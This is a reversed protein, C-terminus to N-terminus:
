SSREFREWLEAVFAPFGPGFTWHADEVASCALALPHDARVVTIVPLAAHAKSVRDGDADVYTPLVLDPDAALDRWLEGLRHDAAARPIAPLRGDSMTRLAAVEARLWSRDLLGGEELTRLAAWGAVRVLVDDPLRSLRELTPGDGARLARHPGAADKMRQTPKYGGWIWAEEEEAAQRARAAVEAEAARQRDAGTPAPPLTEVIERWGAPATRALQRVMGFFERQLQDARFIPAAWFVSGLAASLDDPDCAYALVLGAWRRANARRREEKSPPDDGTNQADSWRDDLRHSEKEWARRITEFRPNVTGASSATVSALLDSVGPAESVDAREAALGAITHVLARRHDTSLEGIKQVLPGHQSALLANDLTQVPPRDVQPTLAYVTDPSVHEPELRVDTFVEVMAAGVAVWDLDLEEDAALAALPRLPKPLERVDDIFAVEDSFLVRGNRACSFVVMENVNWYISAARGGRSAPGLVLTRSGEFGNDESVVVAPAGDATVATAVGVAQDDINGRDVPRPSELDFGFAAAVPEAGNGVVVTVCGAVPFEERLWQGRSIAELNKDAM